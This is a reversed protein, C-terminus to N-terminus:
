HQQLVLALVGTAAVILAVVSGFWWRVSAKTVSDRQLDRVDKELERVDRPLDHISDLKASVRRLEDWVERLTVTFGPEAPTVHVSVPPPTQQPQDTM